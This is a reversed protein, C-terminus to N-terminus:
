EVSKLSSIMDIKKLTYHIIRNVIWTFLLIFFFTVVFSPFTIHRLFTLTEIEITDMIVNTLFIGFFLGFFLGIFTFILIEKTIYHDVEKDTFGLVKLTAIERKRESINIYALNYLVVFSLTGSLFILIFVVSNLSTLMDDIKHITEGVSLISLVSDNKLLDTSLAKEEKLDEINFYVVNLDFPRINKEYTSIDMFVYHGVYNECIGSIMFSYEKHDGDTITLIDGVKKNLFHALKSSIIIKDEELELLSSSVVDRLDLVNKIDEKREPVFVQIDYFSARFSTDLHIGLRNSIRSDDFIEDITKRDVDKMLYAMEDFHFVQSYQKEPIGAISDRIGFGTLMLATCGMIGGVTMFVKKKYRFLNRITVKNSFQIRNWLFPIHELFVRKGGEPAKPRMLDSPKENVIKRITLLTTGCICFLAILIGLIPNISHFDYQFIPVDFLLKYIDWIFKSLVFFGLFSGIVGGIITSIFSYWLYKKRIDKNEFGLSKLTGIFIRDDEVMRSMSILSILISVVFFITPFVTALNSVGQSNDLFSAYSHDDSRKYIYWKSEPIEDLAKKAEKIEQEFLAKNEEYESVRVHYLRLNKNYEELGTTYTSVGKQYERLYSTYQAYGRHYEQLANEYLALGENYEKEAKEMKEHASVFELLKDMNQKLFEFTKIMEEYNPINLISKMLRDFNDPNELYDKLELGLGNQLIGMIEEYYPSDSPIEIKKIEDDMKKIDEITIGFANLEAHLQEWALDIDVKTQDLKKKDETLLLNTKDLKTKTNKLTTSTTNLTKLSTDLTKKTSKLKSYAMDLAMKVENLKEKGELEQKTIEDNIKNYIEEYRKQERDNKIGTLSSIVQNIMDVYEKSGTVKTKADEIQIYLETYYSLNFNHDLVYTYYDIKGSGITTNGRSSTDSGIYLPSKIVGVITQTQEFFTEEDLFVIKDGINLHECVLMNEEVVIEQNNQPFRGSILDLQNIDKTIGMVKVVVEKEGINTLVDRSYSGYANIGFVNNLVSLDDKTIGLTSIIKMDYVNKQDYYTDLSKIMNLSSMKIGVFVGVGLMSMILLSCFRKFSTKMERISTTYIRNKKM